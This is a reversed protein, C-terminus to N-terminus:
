CSETKGEDIIGVIIADIPSHEIGQMQRCSSGQTILVKDGTGAGIFDAAVVIDGDLESTKDMLQIILFKQGVLSEDKRTAWVNNIV